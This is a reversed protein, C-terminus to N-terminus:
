LVKQWPICSNKEVKEPKESTISLRDDRGKLHYKQTSNTNWYIEASGGMGRINVMVMSDKPFNLYLPNHTVAMFLQPSSPNPTIHTQFSFFTSMLEVITEDDSEASVLLYYSITTKILNYTIKAIMPIM